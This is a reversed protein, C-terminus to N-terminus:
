DGGNWVIKIRFGSLAIRVAEKKTRCVTIWHDYFEISIVIQGTARALDILQDVRTEAREFFDRTQRCRVLAVDINEVIQSKKM